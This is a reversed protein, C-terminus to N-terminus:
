IVVKWINKDNYVQCSIIIHLFYKSTFLFYYNLLHVSQGKVWVSSIHPLFAVFFRLNVRGFTHTHSHILNPLFSDLFEGGRRMVGGTKVREEWGLVARRREELLSAPPWCRALGRCGWFPAATLLCCPYNSCQPCRQPVSLDPPIM